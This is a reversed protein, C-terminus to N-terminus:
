GSTTNTKRGWFGWGIVQLPALSAPHKFLSDYIRLNLALMGIM